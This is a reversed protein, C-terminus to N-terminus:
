QARTEDRRFIGQDEADHGLGGGSPPQIGCEHLDIPAFKKLSSIYIEPRVSRAEAM